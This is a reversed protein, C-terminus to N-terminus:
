LFPLAAGTKFNTILADKGPRQLYQIDNVNLPIHTRGIQFSKTTTEAISYVSGTDEFKLGNKNSYNGGIGVSVHQKFYVLRYDIDTQELLSAYLIVLGSCDSGRTMLVENPRKLVEEQSVAESNNYNLNETVFNLLKQAIRENSSSNGVIKKVLKYLSIEGKKAVFAGHNAMLKHFGYENVGIDVSLRGGYVSKNDLFGQLEPMTVEYSFGRFSISILDYSDVRFDNMPFRFFLSGGRELTYDGLRVLGNSVRGFEVRKPNTTLEKLTEGNYRNQPISFYVIRQVLDLLELRAKTNSIQELLDSNSFQPESLYSLITRRLEDKSVNEIPISPVIMEDKKCGTISLVFPVSFSLILRELNM